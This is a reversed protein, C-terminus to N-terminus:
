NTITMLTDVALLRTGYRLTVAVDYTAQLSLSTRNVSGPLLANTAASEAEPTRPVAAGAAPTPDTTEQAAEVAGGPSEGGPSGDAAPARGPSGARAIAIAAPDADHGLAENRGAGSSPELGGALGAGYAMAPIGVAIALLVPLAARRPHQM